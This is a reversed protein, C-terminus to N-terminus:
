SLAAVPDQGAQKAEQTPRTTADEPPKPFEQFRPEQIELVRTFLRPGGHLALVPVPVPVPPLLPNKLVETCLGKPLSARSLLIHDLVNAERLSTDASCTNPHDYAMQWWRDFGGSILYAQKHMFCPSCMM